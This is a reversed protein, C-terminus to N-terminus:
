PAWTWGPKACICAGRGDVDAILRCVSGNIGRMACDDFNPCTAAPPPQAACAPLLLFLLMTARM